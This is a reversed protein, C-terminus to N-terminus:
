NRTWITEFVFPSYLMEAIMVPILETHPGWVGEWHPGKRGGLYFEECTLYTDGYRGNNAITWENTGTRSIRVTKSDSSCRLKNFEDDYNWIYLFLRGGADKDPDPYNDDQIDQIELNEIDEDTAVQLSFDYRSYPHSGNLFCQMCERCEPLDPDTKCESPYGGCDGELFDFGCPTKEGSTTTHTDLSVRDIEVGYGAIYPDFMLNFAYHLERRVKSSSLSVRISGYRGQDKFIAFGEVSSEPFGHLNLNDDEQEVPVVPIAVQWQAERPKKAKMGILAPIGILICVLGFSCSRGLKNTM